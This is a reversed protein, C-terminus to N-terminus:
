GGDRDSAQALWAKRKEARLFLDAERILKRLSRSYPRAANPAAYQEPLPTPQRNLSTNFCPAYQEILYREAADRDNGLATFALSLSSLLEVAFNMSTRWNCLIFRGVTSRGKYGDRLHRWVREFALDSQGVYFVVEADRIVYLDL